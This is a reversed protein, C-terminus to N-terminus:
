NDTFAKSALKKLRTFEKKSYASIRMNRYVGCIAGGAKGGLRVFLWFLRVFPFSLFFLLYAIAAKLLFSLLESLRIVVKGVTFYYVAFGAAMGVFALGRIQGNNTYYILIAAALGAVTGFIIDGVFVMVSVAFGHPSIRCIQALRPPLLPLPIRDAVSGSHECSEDEDSKCECLAKRATRSGSRGSYRVGVAVRIIRLIDYFVGLGVGTLVSYLFMFALAKQSLEM